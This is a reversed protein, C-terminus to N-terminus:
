HKKPGDIKKADLSYTKSVTGWIGNSKKSDVYLNLILANLTTLSFNKSENDYKEIERAMEEWVKKDYEEDHYVTVNLSIMKYKHPDVSRLSQEMTNLSAALCGIGFLMKKM